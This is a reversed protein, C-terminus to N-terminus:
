SDFCVDGFTMDLNGDRGVLSVLTDNAPAVNNLVILDGPWELVIAYVDGDKMTYRINKGDDATRWKKTGYIAEGNVELWKGIDLLREQQIVPIRGDATPGVNLLLNGGKSVIDVFMHILERSTRYDDLDENRNYGYSSGIGRNEEWKRSYDVHRGFAGKGYESTLFGGYISRTDKGWRDNIVVDGRVPSENYLWAVFEPTKWVSSDYDWEGDGWLVSPKYRTVLDRLHPIMNEDVYADVDNRFKPNYWEYLSYYFGMKLGAKRVAATLEGALDRKPGTEVSNWGPTNVAPWLCFGDHHKSTLVVYEAGARRFLDAWGDPDFLEAHFLKAFDRYKFDKGYNADHFTKTQSFGAGSGAYESLASLAAGSEGERMHHWYWEEYKGKPAWAPVSYVGWHIFIGFKADDYWRPVPRKDLSEWDPLYAGESRCSASALTTIFLLVLLAKVLARSM